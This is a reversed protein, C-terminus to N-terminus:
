QCEEIEKEEVTAVESKYLQVTYKEVALNTYYSFDILEPALHIPIPIPSCEAKGTPFNPRNKVSNGHADEKLREYSKKLHCIKCVLVECSCQEISCRSHMEKALLQLTLQESNNEDLSINKLVDQSHVSNDNASNDAASPYGHNLETELHIPKDEWFLPNREIVTGNGCVIVGAGHKKNREWMGALKAGGEIGFTM